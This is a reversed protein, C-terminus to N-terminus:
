QKPELSTERIVDYLAQPSLNNKKAANKLPDLPEISIGKRGLAKTIPDIDIGHDSCLSALTKAGTGPAPNLPLDRSAKKVPQIIKFVEQPSLRNQRAIDLFIQDQGEVQLGAKKLKVLAQDVPIDTKKTLSKLSSLEAHGFPPEGYRIAAEDKIQAGFDLITSFPPVLFYTGGVVGCTLILAINFNLTFLKFEKQRNKLYAMIPKWNYYIHLAMTLIFLFGLNIHIDGWQTKSLGLLNWDAWYAIRGQPVIYLIISTVLMLCFSILATLSVIKRINM